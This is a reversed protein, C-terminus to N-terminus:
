RMRVCTNRLDIQRARERQGADSTGHPRALRFAEFDLRLVCAGRDGGDGGVRERLRLGREGRDVDRPLVEVGHEVRFLSHRALLEGGLRRVVFAAVEVLRERLRVNDDFAGVARRHDDVVRHLCMLGDAFPDAVREVDVGRRLVDPANAVPDGLLEADGAVLHADDTLVHAAAEARLVIGAFVREGRRLECLPRSAGHM